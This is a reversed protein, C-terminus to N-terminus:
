AAVPTQRCLRILERAEAEEAHHEARLRALATREAEDPDAGASCEREFHGLVDWARVIRTDRNHTVRHRGFPPPDHVTDM